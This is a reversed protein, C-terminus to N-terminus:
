RPMDFDKPVVVLDAFNEGKTWSQGDCDNVRKLFTGIDELPAVRDELKDIFFVKFGMSEIERIFDAPKIGALNEVWIPCFEIVMKLHKRNQQILSRGGQIIFPESGQTDMKIFNIRDIHSNSALYQDLTIQPHCAKAFDANATFDGPMVMHAGNNGELNTGFVAIGAAKSVVAKMPFVNEIQNLMLNLRLLMYNNDDPEFAYVRGTKGVLKSFITTYYGLNAGLDIVVDGKHIHSLAFRTETLEWSAFRAICESVVDGTKYTYLRVGESVGFDELGIELRRPERLNLSTSVLRGTDIGEPTRDHRSPM